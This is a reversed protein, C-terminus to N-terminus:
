EEEGKRKEEGESEKEEEEEEDDDSEDENLQNIFNDLKELRSNNQQIDVKIADNKTKNEKKLKNRKNKTDEKSEETEIKELDINDPMDFNIKNNLKIESKNFCSIINSNPNLNSIFQSEFSNVQINSLGQENIDKFIEKTSNINDNIYESDKSNTFFLESINKIKEDLLRGKQNIDSKLLINNSTKFDTNNDNIIKNNYIYNIITRNKFEKNIKDTTKLNKDVDEKDL